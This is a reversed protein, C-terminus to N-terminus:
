NIKKALFHDFVDDESIPHLCLTKSFAPEMGLDVRKVGGCEFFGMKRCGGFRGDEWSPGM